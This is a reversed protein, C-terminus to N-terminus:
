GNRSICRLALDDDNHWKIRLSKIIKLSSEYSFLSRQYLFLRNFYILEILGFNKNFSILMYILFKNVYIKMEEWKKIWINGDRKM